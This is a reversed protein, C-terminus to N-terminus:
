KPHVGRQRDAQPRDGAAGGVARRDGRQRRVAVAGRGASQLLRTRLRLVLVAGAVGIAIGVLAGVTQYIPGGEPPREEELEHAVEAEIEALIDRTHPHIDQGKEGAM